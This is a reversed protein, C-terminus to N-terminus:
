PTYAVAIAEGTMDSFTGADCLICSGTSDSIRINTMTPGHFSSWDRSDKGALSVVATVASRMDITTKYVFPLISFDDVVFYQTCNASEGITQLLQNNSDYFAASMEFSGGWRCGMDLGFEYSTNTGNLAVTQTIVVSGLPLSSFVLCSYTLDFKFDVENQSGANPQWNSSSSFRPNLVLNAPVYNEAL